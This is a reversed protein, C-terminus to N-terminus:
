EIPFMTYRDENEELLPEAVRALMSRQKWQQELVRPALVGPVAPLSSHSSSSSLRGSSGAAAADSPETQPFLARTLPSAIPPDTPLGAAHAGQISHPEPSSWCPSSIGCYREAAESNDSSSTDSSASSSGTNSAGISSSSSSNAPGSSPMLKTPAHDEAPSRNHPAGSQGCVTLTLKSSLARTALAVADNGCPDRQVGQM